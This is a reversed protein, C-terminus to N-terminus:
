EKAEVWNDAVHFETVIPMGVLLDDRNWIPEMQSVLWSAAGRPTEVLGEDHIIACLMASAERILHWSNLLLYCFVDSATSQIMANFVQREARAKRGKDESLLWPYYIRRGFPNTLLGGNDVAKAIITQRLVDISPMAKQNAMLLKQAKAVSCNLQRACKMAGMGYIDGFTITKGEGRSITTINESIFDAKMQHVDLQQNFWNLMLGADPYETADIMEVLLWALVRLEINSLDFQVLTHTERQAKVCKRYQRGLETRVPIQQINPRRCSLRGTKTSYNYWSPHIRGDAGLFQPLPQVFGTYLKDYGMFDLLYSAIEHGDSAMRTLEKSDTTDNGAKTQASYMWDPILTHLAWSKQAPSKPNFREINRYQYYYIGTEDFGEDELVVKGIDRVSYLEDQRLKTVKNAAKPNKVKNCKKGPAAPVISHVSKLSEDLKDVLQYALVNVEETDLYVGAREMHIIIDVMPLVHHRYYKQLRKDKNIESLLYEALELTAICDVENYEILRDDWVDFDLEVDMKKSCVDRAGWAALSYKGTKMSKKGTVEDVHLWTAFDINPNLCYGALLTDDFSPIRFGSSELHRKDFAANHFVPYYPNLKDGGNLVFEIFELEEDKGKAVEVSLEALTIGDEFVVRGTQIIGNSRYAYGILWLYDITQDNKIKTGEIDIAVWTKLM